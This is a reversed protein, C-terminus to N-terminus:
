EWLHFIICHLIIEPFNKFILFIYLEEMVIESLIDLGCSVISRVKWYFKVAFIMKFLNTFIKGWLFKGSFNYRCFIKNKAFKNFNQGM